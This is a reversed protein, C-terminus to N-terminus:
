FIILFKILTKCVKTKATDIWSGWWSSTQQQQQENRYM